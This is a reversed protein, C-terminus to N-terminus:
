LSVALIAITNKDKKSFQPSAASLAQNGSQLSPWVYFQATQSSLQADGGSFQEGQHDFGLKNILQQGMMCGCLKSVVGALRPTYNIPKM